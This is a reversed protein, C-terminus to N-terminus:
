RGRPTVKKDIEDSFFLLNLHVSELRKDENFFLRRNHNNWERALSGCVCQSPRDEKLSIDFSCIKLM